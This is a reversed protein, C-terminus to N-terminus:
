SSVESDTGQGKLIKDKGQLAIPGVLTADHQLGIVGGHASTGKVRRSKQAGYPRLRPACCVHLGAASRGIATVAIVREPQLM